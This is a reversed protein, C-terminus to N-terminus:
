TSASSGIAILAVFALIGLIVLACGIMGLIKGATAEGRGTLMGGSSDVQLEAKRGLAWAFPACLPCIVIGLIGLVLAPISSDVRRQPGSPPPSAFPDRPMQPDARWAENSPPPHSGPSSPQPDAPQQGAKAWIDQLSPPEDDKRGFPDESPSSGFPNDKDKDSM